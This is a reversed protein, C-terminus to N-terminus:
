AQLASRHRCQSALFLLTLCCCSIGVIVTWCSTIAHSWGFPGMNSIGNRVICKMRAPRRYVSPLGTSLSLLSTSSVPLQLPGVTHCLDLEDIIRIEHVGGMDGLWHYDKTRMTGADVVWIGTESNGREKRTAINSSGVYINESNAALGRTLSNPESQWVAKDTILDVLGCNMSDCSLRLGDDRVARFVIDVGNMAGLGSQNRCLSRIRNEM